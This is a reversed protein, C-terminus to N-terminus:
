EGPSLAGDSDQAEPLDLFGERLLYLYIVQAAEAPTLDATDIRVEPDEPM